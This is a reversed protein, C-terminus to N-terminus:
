GLELCLFLHWPLAYPRKKLQQGSDSQLPHRERRHTDRQSPTPPQDPLFPRELPLFHVHRALLRRSHCLHRLLLAHRPRYPVLATQTSAPQPRPSPFSNLRVHHQQLCISERDLAMPILYPLGRTRTRLIRLFSGLGGDAEKAKQISSARAPVKRQVSRL